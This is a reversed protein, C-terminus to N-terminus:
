YQFTGNAYITRPNTLFIFNKECSFLIIYKTRKDNVM